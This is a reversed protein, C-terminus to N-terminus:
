RSSTSSAQYAIVRDDNHLWLRTRTTGRGDAAAAQDWPWAGSAQVGRSFAAVGHRMPNFPQSRFQETV